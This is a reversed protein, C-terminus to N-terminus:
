QQTYLSLSRIIFLFVTWFMYLEIGFIFKLFQHMENTKNNSSDNWYTLFISQLFSYKKFQIVYGTSETNKKKQSLFHWPGMTAIDDLIKPQKHLAM